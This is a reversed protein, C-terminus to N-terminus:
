KTRKESLYIEFYHCVMCVWKSKWFIFTSNGAHFAQKAWRHRLSCDTSCPTTLIHVSRLRLFRATHFILLLEVCPPAQRHVHWIMQLSNGAQMASGRVSTTWVVSVISCIVIVCKWILTFYCHGWWIFVHITALPKSGVRGDPGRNIWSPGIMREGLWYYSGLHVPASIFTIWPMWFPHTILFLSAPGADSMQIWSCM